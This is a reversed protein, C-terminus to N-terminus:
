NEIWDEPHEKIDIKMEKLVARKEKLPLSEYTCNAEPEFFYCQSCDVPYKKMISPCKGM